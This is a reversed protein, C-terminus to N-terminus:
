PTIRTTQPSTARLLGTWTALTTECMAARTWPHSIPKPASAGRLVARTANLLASADGLPVLGEPYLKRLLETVGGHDWGIVPRGLAAAELTTLGFSEPQVSLSYIVNSVAMIERLDPRHGTFTVFKDLGGSQVKQQLECLYARKKPHVDGVILGHAPVGERRLAALLDFFAEHGKLRTIRGPLVLVIRGALEPYQARWAQLWKASPWYDRPYKELDIGHPIVCIRETPTRPYNKTIYDRTCESVAIVREGRTMIASYANVSYFGHVTSVLRPRTAPLMRRWAFWALWGPVRSHIHVVDPREREFLHRLPRVQLLSSLRKRHVPMAIHRGGKAELDPVLRGGNSVVLAEHGNRALHEALELTVCEVGGSNLEPLIQLIKM